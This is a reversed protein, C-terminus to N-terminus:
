IKVTSWQHLTWAGTLSKKPVFFAKAIAQLDEWPLSDAGYWALRTNAKDGEPQRVYHKWVLLQTLAFLKASGCMVAAIPVALIGITQRLFPCKRQDAADGLYALGKFIERSISHIIFPLIGLTLAIASKIELYPTPPGAKVTRFSRSLQVSM